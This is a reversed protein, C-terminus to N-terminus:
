AKRLSEILPAFAAIFAQQNRGVNHLAVADVGAAGIARLREGHEKVSSSIQVHEHMDEPAVSRAHREFEEPARLEAQLEAGLTNCCWQQHAQRLASAEDEHWSLDVKVAVPKGGGGGARYAKVVAGVKGANVGATLLGDTWEGTWSATEETIAAGYVRPPQKPLCWLRGDEIEIDGEHTVREGRWLRRMLDVSERLRRNRGDKDPWGRGFAAENIAEGSGVAFWGFRGGFLVSLTAAAQAVLLPHYRLGIPTTITAFPVKSCAQLAAGLWSWTFASHGQASSWPQLHDSCFVGDFGAKEAAQALLLLDPPSFQEHSAHYYFRLM